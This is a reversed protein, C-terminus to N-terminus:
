CETEKNEVFLPPMRDELRKSKALSTENCGSFNRETDNKLIFMEPEIKAACYTM